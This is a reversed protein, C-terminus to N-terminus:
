SREGVTHSQDQPEPTAAPDTPAETASETMPPRLDITRDIEHRAGTAAIVDDPRRHYRQGLRGGLFAALAMVVVAGIIALVGRASTANDSLWRPAQVTQLVQYDHNALVGIGGTLAVLVVFCFATLLGNRGGDYRAMRGTAWGGIIFAVFVIVAATVLGPGSLQVQAHRTSPAYRIWGIAAAVSGLLVLAGLAACAGGLAAVWDLGGYRRAAEQRALRANAQESALRQEALAVDAKAGRTHCRGFM